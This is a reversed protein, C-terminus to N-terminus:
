ASGRRRRTSHHVVASLAASLAPGAVRLEDWHLISLQDLLEEGHHTLEVLVERRDEDCHRRKVVGRTVLRDVLEVTSHHRLFLQQSLATITPRAGGPLGKIALLLQHQHPEIGKSRAAEESFHLFQRICRRFEALQRFGSESIDRNLKESSLDDEM